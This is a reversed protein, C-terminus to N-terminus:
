ECHLIMITLYFNHAIAGCVSVCRGNQTHANFMRDDASHFAFLHIKKYKIKSFIETKIWFIKEEMEEDWEQTGNM